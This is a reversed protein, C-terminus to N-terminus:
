RSFGSLIVGFDSFRQLFPSWMRGPHADKTQLVM